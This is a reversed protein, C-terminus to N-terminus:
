SPRSGEVLAVTEAEDFLRRAFTVHHRNAAHGMIGELLPRM